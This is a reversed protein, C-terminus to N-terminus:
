FGASLPLNDNSPFNFEPEEIKSDPKDEIKKVQEVVKKEDESIDMDEIFLNRYVSEGERVKALVYFMKGVTHFSYKGTKEDIEKVHNGLYDYFKPDVKLFSNIGVKFANFVILSYDVTFQMFDSGYIDSSTPLAANDKDNARRTVERNMQSLLFFYINNFELKLQNVIEMVSDLVKKKDEGKILVIHDLAIGIAKKDKHELAFKRVADRFEEPTTPDQEIFQRGDELKEVYKDILKNEEETFEENLIKKKSKKITRNIGRLVQNFVKMELSFDLFVFQVSEKNIEPNLFNEKLRYLTETKGHGSLGAILVADGPLLGGLHCDFAEMGTRVLLKEGRQIKEIDERAGKSAEKYSKIM